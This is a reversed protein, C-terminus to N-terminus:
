TTEQAAALTLQYKVKERFDRMGLRKVLGAEVLVEMRDKAVLRPLNMRAALARLTRPQQLFTKLNDPFDPAM